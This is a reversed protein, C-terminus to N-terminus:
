LLKEGIIRSWDGTENGHWDGIEDTVCIDEVTDLQENQDGGNILTTAPPTTRPGRYHPTIILLSDIVLLIRIQCM